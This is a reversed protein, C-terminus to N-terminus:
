VFVLCRHSMVFFEIMEAALLTMALRQEAVHGDRQDHVLADEGSHSLSLRETYEGLGDDCTALFVVHSVTAEDEAVELVLISDLFKEAGDGVLNCRTGTAVQTDKLGTM